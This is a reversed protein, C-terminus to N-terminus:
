EKELSTLTFSDNLRVNEVVTSVRDLFATAVTTLVHYTRNLYCTIHGSKLRHPYSVMRLMTWLCSFSTGFNWNRWVSYSRKQHCSWPLNRVSRM